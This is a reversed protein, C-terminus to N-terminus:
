EYRGGLARLLEVTARGPDAADCVAGV